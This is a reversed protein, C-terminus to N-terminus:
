GDIIQDARLLLSEPLTLGIARATRANIIPAISRLSSWLCTQPKAGNLIRAIYRGVGAFAEDGDPGHFFLGGAEVWAPVTGVSPLKRGKAFEAIDPHGRKSSSITQWLFFIRCGNKSPWFQM